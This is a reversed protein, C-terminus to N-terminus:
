EIEMYDESIIENEPKEDSAEKNGIIGFIGKSMLAASALCIGVGAVSLPMGVQNATFILGSVYGAFGSVLSFANAINSKLLGKESIQRDKKM